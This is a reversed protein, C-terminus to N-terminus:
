EDCDGVEVINVGLLSFALGIAEEYELPETNMPEQEIEITYRNKINKNKDRQIKEKVADKVFSAISNYSSQKVYESIEEHLAIPVSIAMYRGRPKIRSM